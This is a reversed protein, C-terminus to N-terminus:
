ILGLIRPSLDQYNSLLDHALSQNIEVLEIGNEWDHIGKGIQLKEINKNVYELKDEPAPDYNEWDYEWDPDGDEDKGHYIQEVDAFEGFDEKSLNDYYFVWLKGSERDKLILIEGGADKILDFHKPRESGANETIFEGFRKILM